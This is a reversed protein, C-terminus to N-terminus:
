HILLGRKLPLVALLQGLSAVALFGYVLPWSDWLQLIVGTLLPGLAALTYSVFFAMATLRAAAVADASYESLLVLGLAFTGGVRDRGRYTGPGASFQTGAWYAIVGRHWCSGRLCLSQPSIVPPRCPAAPPLRRGGDVPYIPWILWGRPRIGAGSTM